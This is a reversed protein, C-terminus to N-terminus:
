NQLKFAANGSIVKTSMNFNTSTANYAFKQSYESRDCENSSKYSKKFIFIPMFRALILAWCAHLFTFYYKAHTAVKASGSFLLLFPRHTGFLESSIENFPPSPPFLPFLFQFLFDDTSIHTKM